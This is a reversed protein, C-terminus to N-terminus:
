NKDVSKVVRFVDRNDICGVFIWEDSGPNNVKKFKPFKSKEEHSSNQNEGNTMISENTVENNKGQHRASEEKTLDVVKLPNQPNQNKQKKGPREEPGQPTVIAYNRKEKGSDTPKPSSPATNRCYSVFKDNNQLVEQVLQDSCDLKCLKSEESDALIVSSSTWTVFLLYQKLVNKMVDVFQPVLPAASIDSNQKVFAEGIEIFNRIEHESFMQFCGANGWKIMHDFDKGLEEKKPELLFTMTHKFSNQSRKKGFHKEKMELGDKFFDKLECFKEAKWSEHWGGDPSQADVFVYELIQKKVEKTDTLFIDSDINLIENFMQLQVKSEEDDLDDVLVKLAM